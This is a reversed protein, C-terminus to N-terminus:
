EDSDDSEEEQFSYKHEFQFGFCYTYVDYSYGLLEPSELDETTIELNGNCDYVGEEMEDYNTIISRIEDLDDSEKIQELIFDEESEKTKVFFKDGYFYRKIGEQYDKLDYVSSFTNHHEGARNKLEGFEGDINLKKVAMEVIECEELSGIKIAYGSRGEYLDSWHSATEVITLGFENALEVPTECTEIRKEIEKIREEEYLRKEEAIKEAEIKKDNIGKEYFDIFPQIGSQDESVIGNAVNPYVFYENEKNVITTDDNIIVATYGKKTTIKQTKM